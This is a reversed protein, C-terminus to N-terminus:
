SEGAKLPVSYESLYGGGLAKILKITALYQSYLLNVDELQKQILSDQYALTQLTNDLGKEKRLKTLEYRSKANGVIQNQKHKQKFVTEVIVLLDAVEKSSRLLLNNYEYVAEDFAAKKAEINARIAGATFIPLHIAPQLGGTESNGRFLLSYLVSELGTFATLNINPFFDAKAAGVEHALAEVRWIQAM